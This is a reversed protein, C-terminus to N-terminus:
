QSKRASRIHRDRRKFYDKNKAAMRGGRYSKRGRGRGRHHQLPSPNSSRFFGRQAASVAANALASSENAQRIEQATEKVSSAPFMQLPSIPAFVLAARQSPSVNKKAMSAVLERKKLFCNTMAHAAEGIGHKGAKDLCQLYNAYKDVYPKDEEPLRLKLDALCDGLVDVASTTFSWIELQRFNAKFLNDLEQFSFAVKSSNLFRIRNEDLVGALLGLSSQLVQTDPCVGAFYARATALRMFPPFTVSPKHADKKKGLAVDLLALRGTVANNLRLPQIKPRVMGRSIEFPSRDDIAPSEELSPYKSTILGVLEKFVSNLALDQDGALPDECEDEILGPGPESVVEIPEAFSVLKSENKVRSSASALPSSSPPATLLSSPQVTAGSGSTSIMAGLPPITEPVSDSDAVSVTEFDSSVISIVSPSGHGASDPNMISSPIDVNVVGSSSLQRTGPVTRVSSPINIVTFKSPSLRPSASSSPSQLSRRPPTAHVEVQVEVRSPSETRLGVPSRRSSLLPRLPLVPQFAVPREEVIVPPSVPERLLPSDCQDGSVSPGFCDTLVQQTGSSYRPVTPRHPLQPAPRPQPPLAQKPTSAASPRTVNLSASVDVVRNAVSNVVRKSVSTVVSDVVSTVVSNVTSVVVGTCVATSVPLHRSSGDTFTGQVNGPVDTSAPQISSVSQSRDITRTKSRVYSTNFPDTKRLHGKMLGLLEGQSSRPNDYMIQRLSLVMSDSFSGAGEFSPRDSLSPTRTPVVGQVSRPCPVDPTLSRLGSVSLDVVGVDASPQSVSRPFGVSLDVPTVPNSPQCDLVPTSLQYGLGLTSPQCDRVPLCTASSEGARTRKVRSLTDKPERLRKRSRDHDPSLNSPCPSVLAPEGGSGSGGASTAFLVDASQPDAGGVGCTLRLGSDQRPPVVVDSHASALRAERDSMLVNVSKVLSANSEKISAFDNLMLRFDDYSITIGQDRPPASPAATNPSQVSQVFSSVSAVSDNTCPSFLNLSVDDIDLATKHDSGDSGVSPSISHVNGHELVNDTPVAVPSNCVNVNDIVSERPRNDKIRQRQKAKRLRDVELKHRHKLYSAFQEIPWLSCEDCKNDVSCTHGVCKVCKSHGDFKVDPLRRNCNVTACSRFSAM